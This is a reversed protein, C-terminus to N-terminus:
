ALAGRAATPREPAGVLRGPLTVVFSAGSGPGASRAEVTGGHAEALERVIALGLGLGRVGRMEEGDAQTFRDFIRPLFEPEIGRGTDAVQLVISNGSATLSLSVRGGGPTFKVANALLNWVVQRLRDPDGPLWRADAAIDTVLTVQRADAAPRVADLASLAVAGLDVPEIRLRLRGTVISSLDLLDEVLRAQAQANREIVSIAHPVRHDPLDGTSLLRAWGLVANLPTRLEHSVAGLFQDKLRNAESLAEEAQKQPTIDVTIGDFRTPRGAKDYFGRGLAKLWRVEGNPHVVRYDVDCSTHGFIAREAATQLVKRDDPHVCTLLVDLTIEADPPLGYHAKCQGDWFMQQTPLDSYWHGIGISHMVESLRQHQARLDELQLHSRRRTDVLASVAAGVVAFVVLHTFSVPHPAGSPVQRAAMWVSGVTGLATAVLGMALGGYWAAILVALVLVSYLISGQLPIALGVGLSAAVVAITLGVLPWKSRLM